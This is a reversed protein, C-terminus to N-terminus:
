GHSRTVWADLSLLSVVAALPSRPLSHSSTQVLREFSRGTFGVLPDPEFSRPPVRVRSFGM